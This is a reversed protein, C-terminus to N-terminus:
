GGSIMIRVKGGVAMKPKKMVIADVLPTNYGKYYWWLKYDYAFYFLAQKITGGQSVQEQVMKYIRDLAFPVAVM